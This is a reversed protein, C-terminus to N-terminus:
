GAQVSEIIINVLDLMSLYHPGVILCIPKCNERLNEWQIVLKTLNFNVLYQLSINGVINTFM